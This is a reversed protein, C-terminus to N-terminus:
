DINKNKKLHQIYKPEKIYPRNPHRGQNRDFTVEMGTLSNFYDQLVDFPVSYGLKYQGTAKIPLAYDPSTIQEVYPMRVLRWIESVEILLTQLEGKVNLYEIRWATATTTSLGTPDYRGDKTYASYTEFFLRLTDKSDIMSKFEIGPTLYKGDRLQRERVVGYQVATLEKSEVLELLKSIPLLRYQDVWAEYCWSKTGVVFMNSDRNPDNEKTM